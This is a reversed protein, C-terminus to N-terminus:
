KIKNLKSLETIAFADNPDTMLAMSFMIKANELMEKDTENIFYMSEYLFGLKNYIVINNEDIEILEKYAEEAMYFYTHDSVDNQWRMDYIAALNSIALENKSDIELLINSYYESKDFYEANNDLSYKSTYLNILALIYDENDPELLYAKELANECSSFSAKDPEISWRKFYLEGLKAYPVSKTDDISIAKEYNIIAEDYYTVNAMEVQWRNYCLNAYALTADYNNNDISLAKQYAYASLEYNGLDYMNLTWKEYYEDGLATLENSDDIENMSSVNQEFELARKESSCGGLVFISVALIFILYIKKM